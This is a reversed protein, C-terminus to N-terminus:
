DVLFESEADDGIAVAQLEEQIVTAEQFESRLDTSGKEETQTTATWRVVGFPFADSRLMECSNTSRYVTTEIVKGGTYRTAEFDGAPVNVNQSEGDDPLERYHRLLSVVPYLQFVGAAIEQAPEDGVRRYGRVIPVFAAFIENGGDVAPENVEGRIVSEPILLKYMRIGGPGADLIGETTKGTEVKFEIWRCPQLEGQYEADERGVSKITLNRRWELSLDGEASEPRRATQTYTGEYRVFKGDEPLSWLLGQAEAQSVCLFFGLLALSWKM